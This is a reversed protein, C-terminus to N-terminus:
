KCCSEEEIFKAEQMQLEHTAKMDREELKDIGVLFVSFFFITELDLTEKTPRPSRKKVNAAKSSSKEKTMM